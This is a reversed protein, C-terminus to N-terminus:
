PISHLWTRFEDPVPSRFQLREGGDPNDFALEAAHLLQRDPEGADVLRADGSQKVRAVFALYDADPRGYLKDGVVAHGAHELHVRIQHTRGTHPVCRLLTAGTAREVVEFDTQAARVDRADPAASRRLSITSHASHGIPEAARFPGTVQGRAVAVYAKAVAATAFQRELHQRAAKTRAVVCLGSTERDLRHVLEAEPLGGSRLLHILTNRVFPGDSHMPLHAPKEVVVFGPATHVTQVNRSVEPERHVKHYALETGARLILGPGAVAGDLQVRGDRLERLWTDRDLYRFRQLLYDLLSMGHAPKPIRSRLVLASDSPPPPEGGPGRIM